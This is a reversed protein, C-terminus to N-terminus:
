TLDAVSRYLARRMNRHSQPAMEFPLAMLELAIPAIETKNLPLQVAGINGGSIKPFPWRDFLWEAGFPAGYALPEGKEKANEWRESNSITSFSGAPMACTPRSAFCISYHGRISTIPTSSSSRWSTADHWSAFSIQNAPLICAFLMSSTPPSSRSDRFRDAQNSRRSLALPFRHYRCAARTVQPHRRHLAAAILASSFGTSTGIEVARVPALISAVATLFFYDSAGIAGAYHIGRNQISRLFDIEGPAPVQEPQGLLHALRAHTSSYDDLSHFECVDATAPKPAPTFVFPVLARALALRYGRPANRVARVFEWVFPEVSNIENPRNGARQILGGRIAGLGIIMALFRSRAGYALRGGAGMIVLRWRTEM